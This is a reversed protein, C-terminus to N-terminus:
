EMYPLLLYQTTGCYAGAGGPNSPVYGMTDQHNHAALGLQKLNNTCSMRAAVERVQAIAALAVGLLVVAM